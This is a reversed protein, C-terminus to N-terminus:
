PRKGRLLTQAMNRELVLLNQRAIASGHKCELLRCAPDKIDTEIQHIAFIFDKADVFIHMRASRGSRLGEILMMIMADKDESHALSTERLQHAILFEVELHRLRRFHATAGQIEAALVTSSGASNFTTNKVNAALPCVPSLVERMRRDNISTEHFGIKISLNFLRGINSVLDYLQHVAFNFQKAGRNRDFTRSAFM